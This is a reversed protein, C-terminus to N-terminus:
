NILVQLLRLDGRRFANPPAVQAVLQRASSRPAVNFGLVSTAAGEAFPSLALRREIASAHEARFSLRDGAGGDVYPGRIRAAEVVHLGALGHHCAPSERAVVLAAVPEPRDPRRVIRHRGVSGHPPHQARHGAVGVTGRVHMEHHLCGAVRGEHRVDEIALALVEIRVRDEAHPRAEDRIEPLTRRSLRGVALM